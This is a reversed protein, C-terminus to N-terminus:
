WAMQSWRSEKCQYNNKETEVVSEIALSYGGTKKV